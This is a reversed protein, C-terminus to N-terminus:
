ARLRQVLADLAAACPASVKLDLDTDARTRGLNIAAVPIGQQKAARVFRYGSWVMLSSGVVLLADAAQLWGLAARVRSKPVSEGFFVVGPKLIGGCYPCDPVNFAEFDANELDADGDPAAAADRWHWHPNLDELLTQFRVRPLVRRCDLCEVEDLRGHLDIVARSGAKQHLGDVNQTILGSLRDDAELWALAKHCANPQANAIANWGILSRAWYRRRAPASAIFAQYRIPERRKWGGDADRYDPIGSDTSCGAGTLALVRGSRDLFDALADVDTPNVAYKPAMSPRAPAPEVARGMNDHVQM